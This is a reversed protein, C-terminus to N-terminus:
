RDLADVAEVWRREAALDGGLDVVEVREGPHRGLGGALQVAEALEPHNGALEREVVSGEPRTLGACGIRIPDADIKARRQTADREGFLLM